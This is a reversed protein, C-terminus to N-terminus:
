GVAGTDDDSLIKDHDIVFRLLSDVRSSRFRGVRVLYFLVATLDKRVCASKKISMPPGYCRRRGLESASRNM